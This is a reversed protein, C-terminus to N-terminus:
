KHLELYLGVASAICTGLACIGAGMWVFRWVLKELSFMRGELKRVYGCLGDDEKDWPNGSLLNKLETLKSGIESDSM